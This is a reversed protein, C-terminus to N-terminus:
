STPPKSHRRSFPFNLLFTWFAVYVRSICSVLVTLWILGILARVFVPVLGAWPGFSTRILVPFCCGTRSGMRANYYAVVAGVLTDTWNTASSTPHLPFSSKGSCFLGGVFAFPIAERATWGLAILSSGATWTGPGFNDSAWFATSISPLPKDAPPPSYPFPLFQSSPSPLSSLFRVPGVADLLPLM